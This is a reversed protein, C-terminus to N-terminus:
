RCDALIQNTRALHRAREADSMFAREGDSGATAIRVDSALQTRAQRAMDCNEAVAAKHRAEQAAKADREAQETARKRFDADREALAPQGKPKQDTAPATEPAVVVPVLSQPRPSKLIQSAPTSPPPPRDSYQRVGKADIWVYQAQALGACLLLASGAFLRMLPAMMFIKM